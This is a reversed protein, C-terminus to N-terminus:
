TRKKEREALMADAFRYANHAIQQEPSRHDAEGAAILDAAAKPTADSCTTIIEAQMAKAAFYDRKSLGTSGDRPDGANWPFASGGDKEDM